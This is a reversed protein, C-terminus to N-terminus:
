EDIPIVEKGNRRPRPGFNGSRRPAPAPPPEDEPALMYKAVAGAGPEDLLCRILPLGIFSYRVGTGRTNWSRIVAYMTANTAPMREERAARM